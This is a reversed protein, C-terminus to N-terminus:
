IVFNILKEKIYIVKKIPQNALIKKVNENEKALVELDAQETDVSVNEKGRVKGNVQIILQFDKLQLFEENYTPWSNEFDSGDSESYQKWLYLSIHPTIPSLMKLTFQIVEDLCFRQAITADNTKFSEPVANLLEMISAIATNFSNREAYDHTVKKLTKHSKQRLELETKQLSM